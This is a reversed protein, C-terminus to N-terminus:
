ALPHREPERSDIEVVGASRLEPFDRFMAQMAHRRGVLHLGDEAFYSYSGSSRMWGPYDSDGNFGLSVCPGGFWYVHFIDPIPGFKRAGESAILCAAPGQGAPSSYYANGAEWAAVIRGRLEDSVTLVANM